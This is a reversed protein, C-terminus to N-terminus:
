CAGYLSLHNPVGCVILRCFSEEDLTEGGGYFSGKQTTEFAVACYSSAKMQMGLWRCDYSAASM